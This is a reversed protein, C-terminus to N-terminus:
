AHGFQVFDPITEIELSAFYLSVLRALGNKKEDDFSPSRAHFHLVTFPLFM